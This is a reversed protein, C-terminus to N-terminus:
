VQLHIVDVINEKASGAYFQVEQWCSESSRKEKECLYCLLTSGPMATM